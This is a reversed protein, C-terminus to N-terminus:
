KNRKITALREIDEVDLDIDLDDWFLHNVDGEVDKIQAATGQRFKPFKDFPCFYEFNQITIWFGDDVVSTVKINDTPQFKMIANGKM